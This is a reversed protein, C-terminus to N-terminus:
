LCEGLGLKTSNMQESQHWLSLGFELLSHGLTEIGLIHKCQSASNLLCSANIPGTIVSHSWFIALFGLRSGGMVALRLGLLGAFMMVTVVYSAAGQQVVSGAGAATVLSVVGVPGVALVYSIGFLVYLLIREISAYFKAKPPPGALLM